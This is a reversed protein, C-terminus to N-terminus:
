ITLSPTVFLASFSAPFLSSGMAVINLVVDSIGFHTNTLSSTFFQTGASSLALNMALKLCCRSFSFLFAMLFSFTLFAVISRVLAILNLAACLFFPWSYLWVNSMNEISSHWVLRWYLCTVFSGAIYFFIELFICQKSSICLSGGKTYGLLLSSLSRQAEFMQRLPSALCSPVLTNIPIPCNNCPIDNGYFLLLFLFSSLTIFPHFSHSSFLTLIMTTCKPVCAIKISNHLIIDSILILM